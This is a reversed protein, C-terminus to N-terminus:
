ILKSGMLWLTVELHTETRHTEMVNTVIDVKLHTEAGIELVDAM